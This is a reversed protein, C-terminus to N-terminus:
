EKALLTSIAKAMLEADKGQTVEEASAGSGGSIKNEESFDTGEAMGSENSHGSAKIGSIDELDPLVDLEGTNKDASEMVPMSAMDIIRLFSASMGTAKM